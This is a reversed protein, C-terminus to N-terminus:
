EVQDLPVDEEEGNEGLRHATQPQLDLLDRIASSTRSRARAELMQGLLVLTIIMAASEFYVAVNGEPGRFSDPFIGPFLTAIVSYVFAVGTGVGILTFMNLNMTLVSRWARKFFISGGYFIVPIACFFQVWTLTSLSFRSSLPEGPLMDGMGIIFVPMTFLLSIWFRNSLRRAEEKEKETQGGEAGGEKPELDMGCKPCDGPGQQEVEPHMPCTYTKEREEESPAEEKREELYEEPNEQFKEACGESCFYYTVEEHEVTAAAKEPEVTMGCVPDEKKLYQDPNNEFKDACSQSCFYYTEDEHQTEAAADAPDVDMGCVPDTRKQNEDSM